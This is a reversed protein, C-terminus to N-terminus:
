VPLSENAQVAEGLETLTWRLAMNRWGMEDYERTRSVQDTEKIAKVVKDYRNMQVIPDEPDSLSSVVEDESVDLTVAAIARLTLSQDDETESQLAAEVGGDPTPGDAKRSARIDELM